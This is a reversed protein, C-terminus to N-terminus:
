LYLLMYLISVKQANNCSGPSYQRSCSCVSVKCHTLVAYIFNHVLALSTKGLPNEFIAHLDRLIYYPIYQSACSMTRNQVGKVSISGDSNTHLIPPLHIGEIHHFIGLTCQSTTERTKRESEPLICFHCAITLIHALTM